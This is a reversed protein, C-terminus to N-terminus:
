ASPPSGLRRVLPALGRWWQDHPRRAQWDVLEDMAAVPTATLEGRQLGVMVASATGAAVAEDLVEVARAALRTALIRDFPSPRGGQQTHGLVIPRVDFDGHSEAEFLSTLVDTTYAEDAGESRVVLFLKGGAEFRARMASIDDRVTELTVGDEPLHVREAGGALSAMLALYGCRRGMVEVVFCRRAAMASAKIQDISTVIQQLATDSGVSLETAPLNNDISAPLCVVPVDLGPHEGRAHDLRHALEYADFGGVLLLADIGHRTLAEAVLGPTEPVFPDRRSGLAAGAEAVWGEVDRPALDVLHGELLGRLGGEVGVFALGRRSGLRVAARVAANMGPALAGVHLVAVRARPPSVMEAPTGLEHALRDLAAFSHGRAAMAEDYRGEDVLASVQRNRRVAPLLASRHARNHRVGIVQPEPDGTLLVDVATAGMTTAMSRDYASPTGGRQVHGLISSRADEGLGQALLERVMETTIPLGDRDRAGEAVVVTSDRRGLSRGARLSAALLTGWDPGPPDEPIFTADCSGAVASALALYGCRRGMVEVVFARQHSAATSSISDLADVIRHLASDAGITMDTGVMDNDISGVIGCVHLRPHADADDQDLEGATVLEALLEPWLEALEAAGALSGDGGIVVVRDIRQQVLHLVALRMGDRERFAPCRATGLATGGRHQIGAVDDWGLRRIGSGGDVAGQWGELVGYVQAGRELGSRVASRLAANMGPSDGGSTLVAIRSQRASM